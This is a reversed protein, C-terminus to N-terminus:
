VASPALHQRVIPRWDITTGIALDDLKAVEVWEARLDALAEYEDLAIDGLVGGDFACSYYLLLSHAHSFTQPQEMNEWTFFTSVIDLLKPNKVLIGSEERVERVVAKKPDEGLVVGGGPLHYRNGIRVLLISADRIVIGYAAPRWTLDTATIEYENGYIDKSLMMM